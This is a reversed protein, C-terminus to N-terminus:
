HKTFNGTSSLDRLFMQMVRAFLYMTTGAFLAIKFGYAEMEQTTLLPTKGSTAMNSRREFVSGIQTLYVKNKIM